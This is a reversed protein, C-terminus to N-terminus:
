LCDHIVFPFDLCTAFVSTKSGSLHFVKKVRNSSLVTGDVRGAGLSQPSENETAKTLLINLRTVGRLAAPGSPKGLWTRLAHATWSALTNISM